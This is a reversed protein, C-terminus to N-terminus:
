SSVEVVSMMPMSQNKGWFDRILVSTVAGLGLELDRPSESSRGVCADGTQGGVLAKQEM